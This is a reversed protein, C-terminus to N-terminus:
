FVGFDINFKEVLFTCMQYWLEVERQDKEANKLPFLGGEGNHNYRRDIIIKLIGDVQAIECAKCNDFQDLKVNKMLLWFWEPLSYNAAVDVMMSECRMSLSIFLELMSPPVDDLASRLSIDYISRDAFEYCFEDRLRLCEYARNHDNAITWAFGTEQMLRFVLDYDQRQERSAVLDCLWNFYDVRINRRLKM